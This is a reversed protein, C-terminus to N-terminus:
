LHGHLHWMLNETLYQISFPTLPDILLPTCLNPPPNINISPWTHIPCQTWLEPTRKFNERKIVHKECSWRLSQFTDYLSQSVCTHRFKLNPFSSSSEKVPPSQCWSDKKFRFALYLFSSSWHDVLSFICYVVVVFTCLLCRGKVELSLFSHYKKSLLPYQPGLFIGFLM